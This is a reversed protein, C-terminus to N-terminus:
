LIRMRWGEDCPDQRTWIRTPNLHFLGAVPGRGSREAKSRKVTEGGWGAGHRSTSERDRPPLEPDGREGGVRPEQLGWNEGSDEERGQRREPSSGQQQELRGRVIRAQLLGRLGTRPREGEGRRQCERNKPGWVM